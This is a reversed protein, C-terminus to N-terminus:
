FLKEACGTPILNGCAPFSGWHTSPLALEVKDEGSVWNSTFGTPRGQLPRCGPPEPFFLSYRPIQQMAFEEERTIHLLPLIGAVRRLLSSGQPRAARLAPPRTKRTCALWNSFLVGSCFSQVERCFGFM